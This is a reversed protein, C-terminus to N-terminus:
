GPSGSSASNFPEVYAASRPTSSSASVSGATRAVIARSPMSSTSQPASHSFREPHDAVLDGGGLRDVVEDLCGRRAPDEVQHDLHAAPAVRIVLRRELRAGLAECGAEVWQLPEDAVSPGGPDAHVRPDVHEEDPRMGIARHGAVRRVEHIAVGLPEETGIAHP